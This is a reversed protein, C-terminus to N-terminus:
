VKEVLGAEILDFLKTFNDVWHGEIKDETRISILKHKNVYISFGGVKDEKEQDVSYIVSEYIYAEGNKEFGLKELESLDVNDKIKLM